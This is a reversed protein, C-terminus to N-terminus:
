MYRPLTIFPIINSTDDITINAPIIATISTSTSDDIAVSSTTNGTMIDTPAYM